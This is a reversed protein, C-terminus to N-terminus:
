SPRPPPGGRFLYDVLYTVDVVNPGHWDGNIDGCIFEVNSMDLQVSFTSLMGHLGRFDLYIRPCSDPPSLSFEHPGPVTISDLFEWNVGNYSVKVNLYFSPNLPLLNVNLEIIGSDINGPIPPLPFEYRLLAPGTIFFGPLFGLGPQSWPRLWLYPELSILYETSIFSHQYSDTKVKDTTFNDYYFYQYEGALTQSPSGSIGMVTLTLLWLMVVEMASRKM